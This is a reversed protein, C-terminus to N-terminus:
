AVPKPGIRRPSSKRKPGVPMWIVTLITSCDRDTGARLALASAQKLDGMGHETMEAIATYDTVVFGKFGWINRLVDTLLWKNGTAPIGDVVNFSTMVSGAGADIAAKYPPFYDNFMTRRSMDVTNYDRGAESAGYLAFHKVCAMLTNGASLDHGQYGEVMARAIQAGLYPDEGAGEAMRGWRGDRCLDVMPSFTWCIGDASAEVAAIRASQKVADMDWSCALALPIPFVTEYGHIVDMGFLLPIKLRSKEVAIEQLARINAVGKLNFLGGVEGRAIKAAIDSSKAEGTVINGSVPLNLQGIKEQLTMRSMLEDIFRDMKSAEQGAVTASVFWCGALIFSVM